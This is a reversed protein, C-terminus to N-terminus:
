IITSFLVKIISDQPLYFINNNNNLYCILSNFCDYVNCKIKMWGKMKKHRGQAKSELEKSPNIIEM